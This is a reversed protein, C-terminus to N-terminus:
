GEIMSQLSTPQDEILDDLHLLVPYTDRDEADMLMALQDRIAQLQQLKSMHTHQHSIRGQHRLVLWGSEFPCPTPAGHHHAMLLCLTHSRQLSTM